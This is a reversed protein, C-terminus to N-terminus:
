GFSCSLGFLGFLGSLGFTGLGDRNPRVFEKPGIGALQRGRQCSQHRPLPFFPTIGGLHSPLAATRITSYRSRNSIVFQPPVSHFVRACGRAQRRLSTM